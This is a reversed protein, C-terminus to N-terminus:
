LAFILAAIGAQALTLCLLLVITKLAIRRASSRVFTM